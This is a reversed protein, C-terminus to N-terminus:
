KRETNIGWAQRMVKLREILGPDIAVRRFSRRAFAVVLGLLLGGLATAIVIIARSPKSKKEPPTAVDLQQVLPGEKAEEIRALEYQKILTELVAEQYKVERFARLNALADVSKNSNQNHSSGQELKELQRRLGALEALLRQMDSNQSTAYSSMAQIQVERLAIQAHLEASAKITSATQADLSIIGSTEQAKKSALEAIFLAEKTKVMLKEFFVRRQQAGTVALHDLLKRLEDVHANALQASFAPSKNDADISILGAKKDATIKVNAKLMKRTDSLTKQAYETQLNLQQIVNNQLTESQLFAVYMEDPSKVALSGGALSAVGGLSALASSAGSQNQQPPLFTTRATYINSMSLTIGLGLLTCVFVIWFIMRKEEGIAIIIDILSMGEDQVNQHQIKESLEQTTM